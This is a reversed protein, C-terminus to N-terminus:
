RDIDEEYRTNEQSMFGVTEKIDLVRFEVRRNRQHQEESCVIGDACHNILKSEGYGVAELRNPNIGRGILYAMVNDAREQSLNLNYEFGAKADTHAMVEGRMSPHMLLLNYFTELDPVADERVEASNSDFYIHYLEIVMGKEIKMDLTIPPPISALDPDLNIEVSHCQDKEIRIELPVRFENFAPKSVVLEYTEGESAVMFFSGLGATQISVVEGDSAVLHVDVGSLPNGYKGHKVNGCLYSLASYAASEPSLAMTVETRQGEILGFTNCHQIGSCGGDQVFRNHSAILEFDGQAQVVFSFRGEGNTFAFDRYHDKGRLEIKANEIIEHSACNVVQGEIRIGYIRKFYLVDDKNETNRNSTFFGSNGEKEITIGFDDRASNIPRGLNEPLSWDSAELHVQFIDLGGFGAHFNSSFYLTGDPDFSPFVENGRTNIHAGFVQAEGWNGSATRKCFYLDMKGRGGPKDSAFVMTQGDPSIAPHATNYQNSYIGLPATKKWNGEADMKLRVIKVRTNNEEDYYRKNDEIDSATMYLEKGDPSFCIPGEHYPTLPIETVPKAEGFVDGEGITASYVDTFRGNTWPDYEGSKKVVGKRNTVFYVQDGHITPAFDLDETNFSTPQVKCDKEQFAGNSLAGAWALLQNAYHLKDEDTQVAMYKELWKVALEYKENAILVQSYQLKVEVDDNMLAARTFWYEAEPLQNTKWYCVAMKTIALDNDLDKRIVQNFLEIAEEYHHHEFADNAKKLQAQCSYTVGVLGLILLASRFKMFNPKFSDQTITDKKRRELM